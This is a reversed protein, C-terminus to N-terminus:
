ITPPHGTQRSPLGRRRRHPCRSPYFESAEDNQSRANRWGYLPPYNSASNKTCMVENEWNIWNWEKEEADYKFASFNNGRWITKNGSKGMPFYYGDGVCLGDSDM